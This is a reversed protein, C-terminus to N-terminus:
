HHEGGVLLMAATVSFEPNGFRIPSDPKWTQDAPVDSANFSKSFPNTTNAVMNSTPPEKNEKEESPLQRDDKKFHDFLGSSPTTPRPTIRGFLGSSPASSSSGSQDFLGPKKASSIGAGTEDAPTGPGSSGPEYSPDKNESDADVEEDDSDSDADNKDIDSGPQPTLHGFINNSTSFPQSSKPGSLISPTPERSGNVSGFVSNNSSTPGSAPTFGRGKSNKTSEELKKLEEVRKAKYNAEWEAEDDDSDYDDDKAKQMLKKENEDTNKSAIKNFQAM